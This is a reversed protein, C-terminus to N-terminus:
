HIITIYFTNLHGFAAPVHNKLANNELSLSTINFGNFPHPPRNLPLINVEIINADEYWVNVVNELSPLLSELLELVISPSTYEKETSELGQFLASM